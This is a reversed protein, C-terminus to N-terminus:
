KWYPMRQFQTKLFFVDVRKSNSPIGLIEEFTESPRLRRGSTKIWTLSQGHVERCTSRSMELLIDRESARSDIRSLVELHNWSKKLFPSVRVLEFALTVFSVHPVRYLFIHHSILAFHAAAMLELISFVTLHIQSRSLLPRPCYQMVHFALLGLNGPTMVVAEGRIVLCEMVVRYSSANSAAASWRM